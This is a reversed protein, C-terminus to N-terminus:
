QGDTQRRMWVPLRTLEGSEPAVLILEGTRVLASEGGSANTVRSLRVTGREGGCPGMAGFEYTGSLTEDHHGSCSGDFAMRTSGSEFWGSM